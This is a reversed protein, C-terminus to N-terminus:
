SAAQPAGGQPAPGGGKLLFIYFILFVWWYKRLFSPEPEAEVLPKTYFSPKPSLQPLDLEVVTQPKLAVTSLKTCSSAARYNLSLVQKTEFDVFLSLHDHLDASTLACVPVAYKLFLSDTELGIWYLGGKNLREKEFKRHQYTVSSSREGSFRIKLDGRPEWDVGNYSHMLPLTSTAQEEFKDAAALVLLLWIM